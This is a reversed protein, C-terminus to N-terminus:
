RLPMLVMPLAKLVRNIPDLILGLSELTTAGLLYVGEDGFIITAAGTMGEFEFFANGVQKKIKEGNALMFERTSTPKIGLAKLKKAPLVSYVAGSDILFEHTASKKPKAPNSVKVNVFTIAM